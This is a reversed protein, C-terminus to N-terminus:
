VVNRWIAFAVAAVLLIVYVGMRLGRRQAPYRWEDIVAVALIPGAVMIYPNHGWAASFDLRLLALIMHTVGCGPCQLGTVSHFVCPVGLLYVLGFIAVLLILNRGWPPLRM